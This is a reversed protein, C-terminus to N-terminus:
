RAAGRRGWLNVYWHPPVGSRVEAEADELPMVRDRVDDLARLETFGLDRLALPLDLPDTDANRMCAPNWEIFLTLPREGSLLRTMGALAELEAGEVDVKMVDGEGPILEDVPAAEVMLTRVTETLPHAHFGHSDSSGTLHFERMERRGAAAVPHVVVQSLGNLAVNRRLVELNDPGPEVAHVAGTPGVRRAALLSYFGIHAGVDVVTMGPRLAELFARRTAPEYDEYVYHNLFRRPLEMKVGYRQIIFSEATAHDPHSLRFRLRRQLHRLKRPLSRGPDTLPKTLPDPPWSACCM